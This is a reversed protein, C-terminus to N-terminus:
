IRNYIYEIYINYEIIYIYLYELYIYIYEIYINYHTTRVTYNLPICSAMSNNCPIAYEFSSVTYDIYDVYTYIWM